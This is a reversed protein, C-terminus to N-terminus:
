GDGRQLWGQEAAVHTAEYRHRLDLKRLIHHVHQKVTRLSICLQEAIEKNSQGQAVLSLVELERGTLPATTPYEPRALTKLQALRRFLQATIEPSCQAHGQAVLRITAAVEAPDAGKLAYGSAGAEICALILETDDSLELIVVKAQPTQGRWFCTWEASAVRGINGDLLVIHGPPNKLSAGAVPDGRYIGLPWISLRAALLELLGEGLLRSNSIISIAIQQM